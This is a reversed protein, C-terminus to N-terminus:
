YTYHMVGESMIGNTYYVNLTRANIIFIDEDTGLNLTINNLKTTDIQYYIDGDDGNRDAIFGTNINTNELSKYITITSGPTTISEYYKEECVPIEGYSNYYMVAKDKLLQVDAQMNMLASSNTYNSISAIMTASIILIVVVTIILAVMTIGKNNACNKKM